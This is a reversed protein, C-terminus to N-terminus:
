LALGSQAGLPQAAAPMADPALHLALLGGATSEPQGTCCARSGSRHFGAKLFCRGPDRKHLTKGTDVFTIMGESPVPWYWRTAAIAELILTSSRHVSYTESAPHAPCAANAASRTIPADCAACRRVQRFASCLWANPWAHKVYKSFPWATVWYAITPIVLVVCRGPPVFQASDPNQRSYHGDAIRKAMPDARWSEEWIM